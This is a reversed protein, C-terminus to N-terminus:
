KAENAMAPLKMRRRLSRALIEHALASLSKDETESIQKLQTMEAETVFTVVRRPRVRDPPGPRRGRRARWAPEEVKAGVQRNSM